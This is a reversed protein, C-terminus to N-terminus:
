IRPQHLRMELGGHPLLPHLKIPVKFDGIEINWQAGNHILLEPHQPPNRKRMRRRSNRTSYHAVM